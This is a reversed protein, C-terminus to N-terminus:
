KNPVKKYKTETSIVVQEHMTRRVKALMKISM